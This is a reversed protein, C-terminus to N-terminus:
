GTGASRRSEDAESLKVFVPNQLRSGPYKRAAKILDPSKAEEFGIMAAKNFQFRRSYVPPRRNNFGVNLFHKAFSPM